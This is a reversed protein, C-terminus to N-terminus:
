NFFVIKETDIKQLRVGNKSPPKQTYINGAVKRFAKGCKEGCKESRPVAALLTIMGSFM